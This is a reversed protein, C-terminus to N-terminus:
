IDYLLYAKVSNVIDWVRGDALSYEVWKGMRKAQVIGNNRLIRLQHSIASQTGGCVETLHYVCVSGKMLALVIKMRIPESLIKFFDCMKQVDTSAMVEELARQMTLEREKERTDNKKM